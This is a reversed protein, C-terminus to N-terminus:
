RKDDGEKKTHKQSIEAVYAFFPAAEIVQFFMINEEELRGITRPKESFYLCSIPTSTAKRLALALGEWRTESCGDIVILDPHYERINDYLEGEGEVIKTDGGSFLCVVKELAKIIPTERQAYLLTKM